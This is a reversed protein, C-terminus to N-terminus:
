KIKMNERLLDCEKAYERELNRAKKPFIPSITEM